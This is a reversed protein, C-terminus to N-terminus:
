NLLCPSLIRIKGRDRAVLGLDEYVIYETTTTVCKAKLILMSFEHIVEHGVGYKRCYAEDSPEWEFFRHKPFIWEAFRGVLDLTRVNGRCDVIGYNKDLYILNKWHLIKYTKM